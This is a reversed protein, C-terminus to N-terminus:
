QELSKSNLLAVVRTQSAERHGNLDLMDQAKSVWEGAVIKLVLVRGTGQTAQPADQPLIKWQRTRIRLLKLWSMSRSGAKQLAELIKFPNPKNQSLIQYNSHRIDLTLLADVDDHVVRCVHGYKNPSNQAADSSPGTVKSIYILKISDGPADYRIPIRPEKTSEPTCTHGPQVNVM